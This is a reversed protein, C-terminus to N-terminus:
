KDIDLPMYKYLPEVDLNKDINKVAYDIAEHRIHFVKEKSYHEFFWSRKLKQYVSPRIRSILISIWTKEVKDIINELAEYWTADVEQVADFDLIIVKLDKKSSIFNLMKWEFYWANAFYLPWEFAYVWVDRSTKVNVLSADVLSWKKWISLEVFNPKMSRYLFLWLSLIVWVIIWEELKPAFYLTAFFTIVSVVWDHKQIKFAHIIPEIKILNIVAMIIVAALTAQPLHYLLPTLFLLTLAVIIWTVVSSFWTKAWSSFNVASRSFSWSVPYGWTLSASINSLWQWILEQNASLNQKSSSAMWKAISIAEMFWVLSIVIATSILASIIELDLTPISFNPLWEPISWIISKVWAINEYWIYYSIITFFAVTILVWPLKKSIKKLIFLMAISWLAISLTTINVWSIANQITWWVIEYQHEWEWAKVWFIKNLQSSAIILAWANTFWIVVPHSLFDVIIWLKLLWLSLQFIWVILALLAAYIFFWEPDITAYPELARATMLSVIAVPWTALQRSSGFFAAIMVPLFSAYLWIYAPLWALQAYAMSQPILILAVTIWAIIDAKLVNTDKLEWIWSLFPTFKKFLRKSLDKM